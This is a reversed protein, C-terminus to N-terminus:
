TESSGGYQKGNYSYWTMNGGTTNSSEGKEM